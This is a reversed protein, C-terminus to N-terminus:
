GTVQFLLIGVLVDIQHQTNHRPSKAQQRLFVRRKKRTSGFEEIVKIAFPFDGIAAQPRVDGAHPGAQIAM